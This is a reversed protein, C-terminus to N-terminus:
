KSIEKIEEFLEDTSAKLIPLFGLLKMSLKNTVKTKLKM